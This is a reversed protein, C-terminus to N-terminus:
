LHANSFHDVEQDAGPASGEPTGAAVFERHKRQHVAEPVSFTCHTQLLIVAFRQVPAAAGAERATVRAFACDTLWM